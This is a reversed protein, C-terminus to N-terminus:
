QETALHWLKCYKCHYTNLKTGHQLQAVVAATGAQKQSDFALKEVCPKEVDQDDNM